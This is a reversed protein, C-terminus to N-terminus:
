PDVVGMSRLRDHLNRIIGLVMAYGRSEVIGRVRVVDIAGYEHVVLNRFRVVRRLLEADGQTIFGSRGLEDICHIPTEASIGMLACTHLLYDIMAQAHVQLVHLVAYLDVLDNWNIGRSRLKDLLETHSAIIELLRNHLM